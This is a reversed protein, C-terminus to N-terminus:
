GKKVSYRRRSSRRITIRVALSYPLTWFMDKWESQKKEKKALLWRTRYFRPQTSRPGTIHLRFCTRHLYKAYRLNYWSIVIPLLWEYTSKLISTPLTPLAKEYSTHYIIYHVWVYLVNTILTQQIKGRAVAETVTHTTYFLLLFLLGEIENCLQHLIKDKQLSTNLQNKSIRPFRPFTLSFGVLFVQKERSIFRRAKRM